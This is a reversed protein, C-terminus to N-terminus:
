PLRGCPIRSICTCMELIVPVKVISRFLMSTTNSCLRVTEDAVMREVFLSWTLNLHGVVYGMYKATM